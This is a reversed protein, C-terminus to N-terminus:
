KKINMKIVEQLEQLQGATLNDPDMDGEDEADYEVGDEEDIL